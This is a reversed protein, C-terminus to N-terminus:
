PAPPVTVFGMAVRTAHLTRTAIQNASAAGDALVQQLYADDSRIEHYRAQIPELHAIIADTLKPKFEGWKMGNVEALIDERSRGPQM